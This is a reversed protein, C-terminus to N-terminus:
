IKGAVPARNIHGDLASLFISVRKKADPFLGEGEVAAVSLVRGDAPALILNEGAPFSREPDRFFGTIAVSLVLFAMAIAKWGVLFAAISLVAATLILPYGERAIRM